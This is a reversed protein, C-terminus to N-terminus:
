LSVGYLKLPPAGPFVTRTEEFSFGLKELLRGSADNDPNTIAVLRELRLTDRAHAVVAAAAEFAYGEGRFQPLMAFGLDVDDLVPRKLLGCIGIPTGDMLEVVWLGFGFEGYMTRPGADIYECAEDLTRVGKDGVYQIFAPDNLLQLMFAADSHVLERITLRRTFLIPDARM